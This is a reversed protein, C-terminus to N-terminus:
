DEADSDTLAMLITGMLQARHAVGVFRGAQDVVPLDATNRELIAALADRTSLTGLLADAADIYGPLGRLRERDDDEIWRTLDDPTLMPDGTEFREAIARADAMGVMLGRSDNFVIYRLYPAKTLEDVYQAVVWAVYYDSGVRFSLASAKTEILIPIRDPAGKAETVVEEFELSAASIQETQGEGVRAGVPTAAAEKVARVLRIDGFAIESVEGFVFLGLGVAVVAAVIEKSEITFRGKSAIRAGALLLVIAAFAVITILSSDV